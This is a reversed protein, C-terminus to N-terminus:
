ELTTIMFKAYMQRLLLCRPTNGLQPVKQIRKYSMGLDCRLVKCIYVQTVEM